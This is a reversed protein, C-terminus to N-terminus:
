NRDMVHDTRRPPGYDPYDVTVEPDDIGLAVHRYLTMSRIPLEVCMDVPFMPSPDYVMDIEIQTEHQVLVDTVPTEQDDVIIKTAGVLKINDAMNMVGQMAM